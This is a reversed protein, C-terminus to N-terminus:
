KNSIIYLTEILETVPFSRRAFKQGTLERSALKNIDYDTFLRKVEAESISFPPGKMENQPYELTLLFVRTRGTIFGSLHQLYQQRMPEPLAILAGRDYVWDFPEFDAAQLAFFDGQYLSISGHQYINFPEAHNIQPIVKNESFFDHCAIASLENGVVTFHQAFYFIDSSKGCLPIFVRSEGPQSLDPFHKVLLPQLEDQHFGIHTNEWCQHWFEPNM